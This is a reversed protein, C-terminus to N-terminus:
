KKGGGGLEDVARAEKGRLGNVRQHVVLRIARSVGVNSEPGGPGFRQMLYDWDEDFLYLHHASIPLKPDAM